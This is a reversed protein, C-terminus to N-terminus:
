APKETQPEAAGERPTIASQMIDLVRSLGEPMGDDRAHVEVHYKASNDSKRTQEKHSSVSGSISAKFVGWGVSASFSGEASSGSKEEFSSKVEMDFIIDVSKIALSPINIIALMPVEITMDRDTIGDGDPVRQRFGFQATRLKKDTDFGVSTIFDATAKALMLQSECAAKLPAGILSSMPLGGFQESMNVLESM